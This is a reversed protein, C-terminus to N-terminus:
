LLKNNIKLRPRGELDGVQEDWVLCSRWVTTVHLIFFIEDKVLVLMVEDCKSPNM